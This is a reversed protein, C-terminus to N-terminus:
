TGIFQEIKYKKTRVFQLNIVSVQSDINNKDEASLFIKLMHQM